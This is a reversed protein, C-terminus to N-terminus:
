TIPFSHFVGMTAPKEDLFSSIAFDVDGYGDYGVAAGAGEAEGSNM